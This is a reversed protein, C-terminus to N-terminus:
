EMTVPLVVEVEVIGRIIFTWKWKIELHQYYSIIFCRIPTGVLCQTTLMHSTILTAKLSEKGVFLQETTCLFAALVSPSFFFLTESINKKTQHILQECLPQANGRCIFWVQCQGTSSCRPRGLSLILPRTLGQVRDTGFMCLSSM